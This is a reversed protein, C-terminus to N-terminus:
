DTDYPTLEDLAPKVDRMFRELNDIVSDKPQQAYHMIIMLYESPVEEWAKILTDRVEDATGLVHQESREIVDTFSHISTDLPLTENGRQAAIALQNYFNKQIEGDYKTANAVAQDHTDALQIWRVTCQNQGPAFELGAERNAANYREGFERGKEVNAFYIPIFGNRGAYDITAPTGSSAMFVPPHPDQYPAPVVSIRHVRGDEGIEGPAGLRQTAESMWWDIGEEYPYPIQWLPSNHEISEQTWADIVMQVQEEFIGRNLADNPDASSHTARAGLHQGIIDTWRDQYGRAFGVFSRGQTLHDLIATEEAVRIPHQTSMVYGAAGVHLNKTIAGWRSALMGPNPGVEYGESHFHHEITSVGWVGLEDCARVIDDCGLITENYREVNRGIPRLAIREAEDEAHILPYIQLIIKVM